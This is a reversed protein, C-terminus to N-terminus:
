KRKLAIIKEYVRECNNKDDFAFFNDIREKYKEKLKCGNEMYEIIRQVTSDLDYEVEGFGDREYEFYGNECIHGGGYFEEKDFHTYVVPKRLYSFDFAASSYDTILLASRSYIDKYATARNVFTVEDSKEFRNIHHQLNPHPFFDISYGYEKAASILKENNILGNYFKYFNSQEFDDSIGWVDTVSNWGSALYKRWTPMITIRKEGNDELRDFRPFGTLWINNKPYRYDFEFFSNYESNAAVVIGSFNKNYRGIWGSIDNQTIGHQLFIYKTKAMFSKFPEVRSRLPNFIEFEGHSSIIATSVASLIKHKISDRKLVPGIKKLREFDQSGEMLVFRADVKKKNERLFRFLAEGNDGAMAGRDSILWLPKIKFFSYIHLLIRLAAAGVGLVGDKKFIQLCLKIEKALKKVFCSRELLLSDGSYYLMNKNLSFYSHSYKNSLPAHNGFSIKKFIVEKGNVEAAIKITYKKRNELDVEVLFGKRSIMEEDLCTISGREFYDVPNFRKGNVLLYFDLNEYKTNYIGVCCSLKLKNDEVEIFEFTAKCNKIPFDVGSEFNLSVKNEDAVVLPEESYKLKLALIKQEGFIHKQAMIIDDDIYSLAEKLKQIYLAKEEATLNDGAINEKKIRWQLDYMLTMQLFRPLVGFKEVAAKIVSLHYSDMVPLYWNPKQGSSQIASAAGTSRKRYLYASECFLGITQKQSIVSQVVKADEAYALTQDFRLNEFMEAKFFSSAVHMQPANWEETLDVVRSGAKFKYNLMHDGRAADFFKIPLAVMDTEDYHKEFFKWVKALADTAWKDDSDMFNVYKGQVHKLGENRASSVGGNQKHIVFINEPYKAAYEDCIEGSNDPTGDDVLILQVNKLGITQHIVSDVAERLFEAVNYVASIITFKYKYSNM